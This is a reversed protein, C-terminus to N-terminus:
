IAIGPLSNFTLTQLESSLVPRSVSTDVTNLYSNLWLTHLLNGLSLVGCSGSLCKARYFSLSSWGMLPLTIFLPRYQRFVKWIRGGSHTQFSIMSVLFCFLIHSFALFLLFLKVKEYKRLLYFLLFEFRANVAWATDAHSSRALPKHLVEPYLTNKATLPLILPKQSSLSPNSAWQRLTIQLYM